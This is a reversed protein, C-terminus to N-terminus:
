IFINNTFFFFDKTRLKVFFIMLNKNTDDVGEIVLKGLKWKSSPIRGNKVKRKM